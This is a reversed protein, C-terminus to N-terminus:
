KIGEADEDEAEEQVDFEIEISCSICYGDNCSIRRLACANSLRTVVM